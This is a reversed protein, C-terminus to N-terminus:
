NPRKFEGSDYRKWFEDAPILTRKGAAASPVPYAQITKMERVIEIGKTINSPTFEFSVLAMGKLPTLDAVKTERIDLRLLPMGELPSLDSVPNNACVLQKLKMGKLPSLDAIQNNACELSTLALGQLPALDAVRSNNLNVGWIVGRQDTAFEGKGTFQPNAKWLAARLEIPTSMQKSLGALPRLLPPRQEPPLDFVSVAEDKKKRVPEYVVTRSTARERLAVRKEFNLFHRMGGEAPEEQPLVAPTVRPAALRPPLAAQTAIRALLENAPSYNENWILIQRCIEAATPLDSEDFAKQAQALWEVETAVVESDKYTVRVESSRGLPFTALTIRSGERAVIRGRETRGDKLHVNILVQSAPAKPAAGHAVLAERARQYEDLGVGSALGATRMLILSLAVMRGIMRM